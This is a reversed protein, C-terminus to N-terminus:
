TIYSGDAHQMPRAEPKPVLHARLHEIQSAYITHCGVRISGDANIRDLSFYGLASNETHNEDNREWVGAKARVRDYFALVRVADRKPVEAGWSTEITQGNATLRLMAGGEACSIRVYHPVSEGSEWRAIAENQRERLMANAAERAKAAKAARAEAGAKRNAARMPDALLRDRRDTIRGADVAVDISPAELAFAACYDRVNDAMATLTDRPRSDALRPSTCPCRMLEACVRGYGSMLYDVNGSHDPHTNDVTFRDTLLNPVLFQQIEGRVAQRYNSVHQLTTVSFKHSTFLAYQAKSATEVIHAVPTRYSYAVSGDFHM